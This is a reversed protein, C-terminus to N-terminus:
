EINKDTFNLYYFCRGGLITLNLHIVTYLASVATGLVDNLVWYINTIIIM